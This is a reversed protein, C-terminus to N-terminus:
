AGCCHGAGGTPIPHPMLHDRALSFLLADDLEDAEVSLMGVVRARLDPREQELLRALHNFCDESPEPTQGVSDPPMAPRGKPRKRHPDGWVTAEGRAENHSPGSGLSRGILLAREIRELMALIRELYPLRRQSRHLSMEGQLWHGLSVNAGDVLADDNIWYVRTREEGIWLIAAAMPHASGPRPAGMPGVGDSGLGEQLLGTTRLVDRLRALSAEGLPNGSQAPDEGIWWIGRREGHRIQWSHHDVIQLLAGHARLLSEVDALRLRGLLASAPISGEGATQEM